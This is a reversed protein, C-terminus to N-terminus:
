KFAEAFRNLADINKIAPLELPEIGNTLYPVGPRHAGSGFDISLPASKHEYILTAFTCTSADYGSREFLQWDDRLIITRESIPEDRAFDEVSEVGLYNRLQEDTFGSSYTHAQDM